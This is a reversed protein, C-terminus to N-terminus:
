KLYDECFRDIEKLLDLIILYYHFAEASTSFVFLESHNDISVNIRNEVCIVLDMKRVEIFFVSFLLGDM